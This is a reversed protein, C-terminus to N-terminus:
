GGPQMFGGAIQSPLTEQVEILTFTETILAVQQVTYLGDNGPSGVIRLPEGQSLVPQIAYGFVVFRTPQQIASIEFSDTTM